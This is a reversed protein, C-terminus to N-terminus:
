TGAESLLYNAIASCTVLMFRAESEGVGPQNEKAAHRVTDSSWGYLKSVGTSFAEHVKGQNRLEKVAAGLKASEDGVVLRAAAEVASIAEKVANRYDPTKRDSYLSLAQELHKKVIDPGELAKEMESVELESTIPALVGKVFRYPSKERELIRNSDSWFTKRKSREVVAAAVFELFDFPEPFESKLFFVKIVDMQELPTDPRNGVPKKFYSDWVVKTANGFLSDMNSKRLLEYFTEEVLNWLRAKLADDVEELGMMPKPKKYGLRESFRM